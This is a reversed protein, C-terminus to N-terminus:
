AHEACCPTPNRTEFPILVGGAAPMATLVLTGNNWQPRVFDGTRLIADTPAETGGLVVVRDIPTTALITAVTLDGTLTTSGPFVVLRGSRRAEHDAVATPAPPLDGPDFATGAPFVLTVAVHPAPTRRLHTAALLPAPDLTALWHEASATDPHPLGVGLVPGAQQM